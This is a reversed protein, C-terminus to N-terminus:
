LMGTSRVLLVGEYLWSVNRECAAKGKVTAGLQAMKMELHSEPISSPYHIFSDFHNFTSLFGLIILFYFM